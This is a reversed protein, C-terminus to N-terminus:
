ISDRRNETLQSKRLRQEREILVCNRGEAQGSVNTGGADSRAVTRQAPEGELEVRVALQTLRQAADGIGKRSSCRLEEPEDDRNALCRCIQRNEAPAGGTQTDANYGQNTSAIPDDLAVTHGSDLRAIFSSDRSLSPVAGSFGFDGITSFDGSREDALMLSM